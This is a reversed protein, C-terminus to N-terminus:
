LSIGNYLVIFYKNRKLYLPGERRGPLSNKKSGLQDFMTLRAALGMSFCKCAALPLFVCHVVVGYQHGVFAAPGNQAIAHQCLNVGTSVKCQLLKLVFGYSARAMTLFIM